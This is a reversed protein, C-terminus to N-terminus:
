YSEGYSLQENAEQLLNRVEGDMVQSFDEYWRGVGYFPDPTIACVIEDVESKFGECVDWAAAPVAVIIRAPHRARLGAVAARMSAGTALGDDILIVTRDRVEPFPRNGRYLRERRELEKLERRAVFHIVEDPISLMRVIDQNLVRIGGSAIAGIALEERGPMGLKRVIFIDLPANLARAVEYAVPVGGRPLALVLVDPRGAYTSLKQALKKGADRRDRFPAM